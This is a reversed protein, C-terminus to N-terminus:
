RRIILLLFALVAGGVLAWKMGSGASQVVSQTTQGANVVAKVTNVAQTAGQLTTEGIKGLYAGTTSFVDGYTNVIGDWSSYWPKNVVMGGGSGGSDQVQVM